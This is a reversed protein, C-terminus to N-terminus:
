DFYPFITFGRKCKEKLIESAKERSRFITREFDSQEFYLSIEDDTCNAIFHDDHVETVVVDYVKQCDIEFIMYYLVDGVKVNMM